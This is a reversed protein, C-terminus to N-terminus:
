GYKYKDINTDIYRQQIFKGLDLDIAKELNVDLDFNINISTYLIYGYIYKYMQRQIDIHM